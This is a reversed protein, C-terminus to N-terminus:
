SYIFLFLGRSSSIEIDLFFYYKNYIPFLFLEIIIKTELVIEKKFEVCWRYVRNRIVKDDIRSYFCDFEKWKETMWFSTKRIVYDTVYCPRKKWSLFYNPFKIEYGQFRVESWRLVVLNLFFLSFFVFVNFYINVRKGEGERILM